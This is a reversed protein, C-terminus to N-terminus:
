KGSPVVKEIATKNGTKSQGANGFHATALFLCLGVACLSGISFRYFKQIKELANKKSNGSYRYTEGPKAIVHADEYRSFHSIAQTMGKELLFIEKMHKEEFDENFTVAGRLMKHYVNLDLIKVAYLGAAAAFAILVTVNLDFGCLLPIPISVDEHRTLLVIGLGLSAAVFALGFQRSKVSMENFHMQTDVAKAWIAIYTEMQEKSPM